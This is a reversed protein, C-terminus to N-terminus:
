TTQDFCGNYGGTGLLMCSSLEILCIECLCVEAWKMDWVDKREFKLQQGILEQGNPDTIRTDLDFFSLIGSM